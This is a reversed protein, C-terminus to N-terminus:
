SSTEVARVSHELLELPVDSLHFPWRNLVREVFFGLQVVVAERGSDPDVIGWMGQSSYEPTPPALEEDLTVLPVGMQAAVGLLHDRLVPTGKLEDSLQHDVNFSSHTVLRRAADALYPNSRASPLKGRVLQAENVAETVIRQTSVLVLDRPVNEEGLLEGMLASHEQAHQHLRELSPGRRVLLGEEANPYRDRYDALVRDLESEEGPGNRRYANWRGYAALGLLRVADAEGLVAWALIEPDLAFGRM